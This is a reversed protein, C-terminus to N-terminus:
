KGNSTGMRCLTADINQIIEPSLNTGDVIDIQGNASNQVEFNTRNIDDSSNNMISLNCYASIFRGCM